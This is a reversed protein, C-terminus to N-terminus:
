AKCEAGGPPYLWFEGPGQRISLLFGRIILGPNNLM